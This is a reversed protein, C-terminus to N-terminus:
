QQSAKGLCLVAPAVHMPHIPLAGDPCLETAQDTGQLSGLWELLITWVDCAGALLVFLVAFEMMGGVGSWSVERRQRVVNWEVQRPRTGSWTPDMRAAARIQRPCPIALGLLFNKILDNLM